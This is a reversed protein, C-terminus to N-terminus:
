TVAIQATKQANNQVQGYAAQLVAQLPQPVGEFKNNGEEYEGMCQAFFDELHSPAKAIRIRRVGEKEERRVLFFFNAITPGSPVQWIGKFSLFCDGSKQNLFFEEQTVTAMAAVEYRFLGRKMLHWLLQCKGNMEKSLNKVWPPADQRLSNILLFVGMTKAERVAAEIGGTADLPKIRKGDSEVLLVGGSRWFIQGEGRKVKEAHIKLALKGAKGAFLDNISLDGKALLGQKEREFVKNRLSLLMERLKAKDSEDLFQQSDPHFDYVEKYPKLPGTPSKVLYGDEVMKELLGTLEESTQPNGSFYYELTALWAALRYFPDKDGRLYTGLAKLDTTNADTALKQAIKLQGPNEIENVVKTRQDIKTLLNKAWEQVMKQGKDIIEAQKSIDGPAITKPDPLDLEVSTKWVEALRVFSAIKGKDGNKSMKIGGENIVRLL